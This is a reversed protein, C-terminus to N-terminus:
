NVLELARSDIVMQETAWPAMAQLEPLLEQQLQAACEALTTQVLSLSEHQRTVVYIERCFVPAPAIQLHLRSLMDKCQLLCLPTSLAWGMGEAVMSFVVRSTDAEVWVPVELRMRSLQTEVVRGSASRRSYRILPQGSQLLQQWEVPQGAFPSDKPLVLVHPEQFLFYRSLGEVGDLPDSTIIIDVERNHLDNAINPSIGSLVSIQSARDSLQKILRPAVNPSLSDVVGIRVLPKLANRERIQGVTNEIEAFQQQLQDRLLIAEPKLAIPRVDRDFLTVGLNEELKQIHQSVGSQSLGLIRAAHTFNRHECVVLFTELTKSYLLPSLTSPLNEDFPMHVVDDRTFHSLM